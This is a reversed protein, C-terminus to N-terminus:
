PTSPDAALSDADGEVDAGFKRVTELLVDYADGPLDRLSEVDVTDGFSWAAVVSLLLAENYADVNAQQIEDPLFLEQKKAEEEAVLDDIPPAGFAAQVEPEAEGLAKEAVKLNARRQDEPLSQQLAIAAQRVPRRLRESVKKPDRIDAWEDDPLEIRTLTQAM